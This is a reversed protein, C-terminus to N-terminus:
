GFYLVFYEILNQHLLKKKFINSKIIYVYSIVSEFAINTERVDFAFSFMSQENGDVNYDQQQFLTWNFSYLAIIICRKEEIVM